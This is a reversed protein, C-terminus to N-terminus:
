TEIKALVPIKERKSVVVGGPKEVTIAFMKPNKVKLKANIPVVIEGNADIDFVGGDIPTKEDQTEDFIWLQYTEKAKDNAPLGKFRMFGEQKEDSWVIDGSVDKLDKMNGAAWNAKYLKQNSAILQQFKETATPNKATPPTPSEVNRPFFLTFALALSTFTAVAWGLWHWNTKKPEFEFTKQLEEAQPVFLKEADNLIKTRLHLPMEEIQLNTLSIASAALEFSNNDQWEPFIANLESLEQEDLGFVAQDALLDQITENKM